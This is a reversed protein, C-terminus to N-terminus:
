NLLQRYGHTEGGETTYILRHFRWNHDRLCAMFSLIEFFWGTIFLM